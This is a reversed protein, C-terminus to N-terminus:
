ELSQADEQVALDAHDHSEASTPSSTAAAHSGDLQQAHRWTNVTAILTNLLLVTDQQLKVVDATSQQWHLTKSCLSMADTQVQMAQKGGETELVPGVATRVRQVADALKSRLEMLRTHVNASTKVATDHAAKKTSALTQSCVTQVHQLHQVPHYTSDIKDIVTEAYAILDVHIMDKLRTASLEKVATWQNAARKRLRRSVRTVISGLSAPQAAPEVDSQDAAPLVTDVTNSTYNLLRSWQGEVYQRYETNKLTQLDASAVQKANEFFEGLPQALRDTWLNGLQAKMGQVMENVSVHKNAQYYDVSANYLARANVAVVNQEWVQAVTPKLGQMMREANGKLDVNKLRSQANNYFALAPAALKEDWQVRSKLSEVFAEFSVTAAQSRVSNFSEVSAEFFTKFEQTHKQVRPRLADDVTKFWSSAVVASKLNSGLKELSVNGNQDKAEQQLKQSPKIITSDVASYAATLHNDLSHVMPQGYSSLKSVLPRSFWATRKDLSELSKKVLPSSAEVKSYLGLAVQHVREMRKQVFQGAVVDEFAAATYSPMAPVVVSM